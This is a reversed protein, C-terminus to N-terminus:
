APQSLSGSESRLSPPIFCVFCPCWCVGQERERGARPSVVEQGTKTTQSVIGAMMADPPNEDGRLDTGDPLSQHVAIFGQGSYEPM